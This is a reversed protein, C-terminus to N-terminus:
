SFGGSRGGFSRGGRGRGSSNSSSGGREERENDRSIEVGESDVKKIRIKNSKEVKRLAEGEARSVFMIAKGEKGARGTRGIRHIYSEPDNPVDYNIVMHIHGLNLGRAAVDTTVLIKLFGKKYRDMMRFRQSQRMDGNIYGAEFGDDELKEVLQETNRKTETFVLVKEDAKRHTELYSKLMEYKEFHPVEMFSHDIKEVTITDGSKVYTYDVGLHGEIISRIEPTITASFAFVQKLNKCNAWIFEIDDVFGMDLMRDVEDLVLYEIGNLDLARREIFDITRGPTGAVIHPKRDLDKKQGFVSAGGYIATSRVTMARSLNVVDERIQSVLERTPGLILALTTHRHTDINNLIPVLFAATKGTGTQSQGVINKGEIGAPIVQTQIATPEIFNAKRLSELLTPKLGFSEFM